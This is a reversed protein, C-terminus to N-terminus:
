SGGLVVFGHRRYVERAPPSTLYRVLETTARKKSGAVPALPYVIATAQGRPVEFAVRVGRSIRADTRYVIAADANESEVAALAARVNLTPVVRGEVASWLGISELWTRAYVGAPVAQPDALALRHVAPLDRPGALRVTSAAPVVAVLVNSLVDVRDEARVLGAAELGDMQAEDASFFVDAPAGAKIQRALDNSGGFNFAVKHGTGKEFGKAVDKLADTLSAAAYLAVEEAGAPAAFALLVVVVIRSVRIGPGRVRAEKSRLRAEGTRQEQDASDDEFGLQLPFRQGAPDAPRRRGTSRAVPGTM